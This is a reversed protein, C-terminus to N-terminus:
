GLVNSYRSVRRHSCFRLPSREARCDGWMGARERKGIRTETPHLSVGSQAPDIVAAPSGNRSPRPDPHAGGSGHRTDGGARARPSLRRQPPPTRGPPPAGQAASIM